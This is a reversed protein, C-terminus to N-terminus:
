VEPMSSGSNGEVPEPVPAENEEVAEAAEVPEAVTASKLDDTKVVVTFGNGVKDDVEHFHTITLGLFACELGRKGDLLEHALISEKFKM